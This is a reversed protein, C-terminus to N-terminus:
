VNSTNNEKDTEFLDAFPRVKGTRNGPQRNLFGPKSLFTDPVRLFAPYLNHKELM